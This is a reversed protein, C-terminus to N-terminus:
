KFVSYALLIIILVACVKGVITFHDLFLTVESAIAKKKAEVFKHRKHQAHQEKLDQVRLKLYLAEAAQQNGGSEAFAKAHLGSDVVGNRVEQAVIGYLDKDETNSM